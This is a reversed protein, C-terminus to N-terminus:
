DTPLSVGNVSSTYQTVTANVFGSREVAIGAKLLVLLRLSGFIPQLPASLVPHHFRGGGGLFFNQVLVTSHAPAEVFIRQDARETMTFAVTVCYVLDTM